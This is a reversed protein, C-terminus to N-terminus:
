VAMALREIFFHVLCMAAEKHIRTTDSMLKFTYLTSLILISDFSDLINTTMLGELHKDKRSRGRWMMVTLLGDKWFDTPFIIYRRRTSLVPRMIIKISKQGIIIVGVIIYHGQTTCTLAPSANKRATMHIYKTFSVKLTELSLARPQWLKSSHKCNM